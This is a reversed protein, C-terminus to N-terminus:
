KTIDAWKWDINGLSDLIVGTFKPNQVWTDTSYYIPALPMEDMFIEEAKKLMDARKAIDTEKNADNVLQKYEANEWNTDNNGGKKDKFMEIYNIPDNFDANWGMRGVQYNGEHLKDLYVKWEANELKVDVGLNKKWQDQIAEAIKKHSEATNFSLTVPPLKSWGMEKMGEELLKKATEADGDKFFGEKKYAMSPPLMGLAPLQGAQTVNDVVEQRNIAYAFAKRIKANNFPEKDTNFKYWYISAKPNVKLENSDKLPKIADLPIMGTPHGAWDLEGNQFMALESNEDEVMAFELKDLKVTDKDWYHENKELVLKSKHQWETMKFPGNSVITAAENAWTKNSEVLKKNVPFYTYFSTLELFFPTPNELEVVLTKDDTAKIGVQDAPVEGKNYKEGNKIYYLQYAYNSALEKSLARKWAFEFDHATVPEGNSWKSDRLTFTYTKKDDSIKIDQAVSNQPKAEADTRTLGDYTARIVAGSTADEALGPDATPPESHLNIKVVKPDGKPAEAAKGPETPAPATSNGGCGALAAGLVLVSSMLVFINKKM